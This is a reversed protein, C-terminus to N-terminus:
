GSSFYTNVVNCIVKDSCSKMMLYIYLDWMKKQNAMCLSYMFISLNNFYDEKLTYKLQHQGLLYCHQQLLWQLFCMFWRFISSNPSISNSFKMNYNVFIVYKLEYNSISIYIVIVVRFFTGVFWRSNFFLLELYSSLLFTHM